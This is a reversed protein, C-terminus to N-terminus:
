NMQINHIYVFRVVICKYSTCMTNCSFALIYHISAIALAFQFCVAVRCTRCFTLMFHTDRITYRYYSYMVGSSIEVIFANMPENLNNHVQIILIKDNASKYEYKMSVANMYSHLITWSRIPNYTIGMKHSKKLYYVVSDHQCIANAGAHEVQEITLVAAVSCWYLWILRSEDIKCKWELASCLSCFACLSMSECVESLTGASDGGHMSLWLAYTSNAFNISCTGHVARLFRFRSTLENTYSIIINFVCENVRM